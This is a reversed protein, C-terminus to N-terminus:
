IAKNLRSFPEVKGTALAIIKQAVSQWSHDKEVFARGKAGLVTRESENKVLQAITEALSEASEAKAYTLVDGFEERMSVLDSSIVPKGCALYEYVKFPSTAGDRFKLPYSICIDCANIATAVADHAIPPQLEVNTLVHERIFSELAPREEGNGIIFFQLTPLLQAAELIYRVGQWAHLSGIYGIRTGSRPQPQPLFAETDVGNPIVTIKEPEIGYRVIFYEKIGDTVAILRTAFKANVKELVAFIGVALLIRSRMTQNIHQADQELIGNIELLVPIKFLKGIIGPVILLHSHRAYVVDPRATRIDRWLTFLLRPQFFLSLLFRPSWLIKISYPPPAETHRKFGEVRPAYLTVEHGLKAFQTCLADVHISPASRDDLVLDTIYFIRMDDIFQWM